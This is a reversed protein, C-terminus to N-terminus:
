QDRFWFLIKGDVYKVMTGEMHLKDSQILINWIIVLKAIPKGNVNETSQSWQLGKQLQEWIFPCMSRLHSPKREDRKTQKLMRCVHNVHQNENCLDILVGGVGYPGIGGFSWAFGCGM